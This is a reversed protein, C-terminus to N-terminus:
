GFGTLSSFWFGLTVTVIIWDLLPQFALMSPWLVSSVLLYFLLVNIFFM